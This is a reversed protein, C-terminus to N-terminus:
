FRLGSSNLLSAVVIRTVVFGEADEFSIQFPPIPQVRNRVLQRIKQEFRDRQGFDLKLGKVHGDNDVGIFIVGDNTNAFAAISKALEDEVSSARLDDLSLGRKFEITQGEGVRLAEGLTPVQTSSLTFYNRLFARSFVYVVISIAFFVFISVGMLWSFSGVPVFSVAVLRGSVDTQIIYLAGKYAHFRWGAAPLEVKDPLFVPLWPGWDVVEETGADVIEFGDVSPSAKIRKSTLPGWDVVEETGADVIEFGDVSPSAKIRKSTMQDMPLNAAIKDTERKLAADVAGLMSKPTTIMKWPAQEAYGVIIEFIRGKIKAQRSYLRWVEGDPTSYSLPERFRSIFRTDSYDLPAFRGPNEATETPISIFFRTRSDIVYDSGNLQWDNTFVSADCIAETCSIEALTRQNIDKWRQVAPYVSAVYVCGTL